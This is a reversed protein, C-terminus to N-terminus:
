ARLITNRRRFHFRGFQFNTYAAEVRQLAIGVLTPLFRRRRAPRAALRPARLRIDAAAATSDAAGARTWRM